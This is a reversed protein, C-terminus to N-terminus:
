PLKFDKGVINELKGRLADTDAFITYSDRFDDLVRWVQKITDMKAKEILRL